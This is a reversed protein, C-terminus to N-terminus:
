SAEAEVSWTVHAESLPTYSCFAGTRISRALVAALDPEGREVQQIAARIAKTVAARAREAAGTSRRDRGGL